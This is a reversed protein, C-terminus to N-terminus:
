GQRAAGDGVEGALVDEGGSGGGLGDLLKEGATGRFGVNDDALRADRRGVELM